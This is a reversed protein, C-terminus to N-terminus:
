SRIRRSVAHPMCRINRTVYSVFDIAHGLNAGRRIADEALGGHSRCLRMGLRWLGYQNQRGLTAANDAQPLFFGDVFGTQQANTFTIPDIEGFNAYSAHVELPGGNVGYKIRYSAPRREGSLQQHAPLKIEAM